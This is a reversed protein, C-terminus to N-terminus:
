HRAHSHPQFDKLSAEGTPCHPMHAPHPFPIKKRDPAQAMTHTSWTEPAWLSPEFHVGAHGEWKSM